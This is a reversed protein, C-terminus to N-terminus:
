FGEFHGFHSFKVMKAIKKYKGIKKTRKVNKGHFYVKHGFNARIWAFIPTKLSNKAKKFILLKVM